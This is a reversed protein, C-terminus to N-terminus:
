TKRCKKLFGDLWSHVPVEPEEPEGIARKFNKVISKLTQIKIREEAIEDKYDWPSDSKLHSLRKVRLANLLQEYYGILNSIKKLKNEAKM